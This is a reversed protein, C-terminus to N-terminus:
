VAYERIPTLNHRFLFGKCKVQIRVVPHLRAQQSLVAPSSDHESWPETHTCVANSRVRKIIGAQIIGKM